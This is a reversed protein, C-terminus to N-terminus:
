KYNDNTQVYSLWEKNSIALKIKRLDDVKKIQEIVWLGKRAINYAGNADADKPLSDEVARSDYFIGNKDCVPSILYDIDSNTVSNRMQLTLKFCGLLVEFFAKEDKVLIFDKINQGNMYVIENDDFLKKFGDTPKVEKNDWQSNKDKNRFTLIREGYSCVTWNQRTGDAKPNFATYNTLKFEFYNKSINYKISEFKGFFEKAKEVSTYRTDFLNVFGTIPDIKSTNWAPVYYLFGSQKGIKEFSIFKSTLQLANLVGGLKNVDKKKDVFYNLKDILAKEFKQYVQKEVKFRGQKFGFNLDELVVIANHKVMLTAVKHIVQSMYGEKLEKINEVVGWNVRADGREKEKADLLKHYNTKYTTCNHENVIENLSYQEIIKGSSDILSLYLLHREGRDIGIVKIDNSEKIAQNVQQNINDNGNAKFNMTIPVHFGFKDVTYRKDKIIDYDFTSSKKPNDSNKNNIPENADHTVINNTISKKRFFIEAQGNLKYVVNSLNDKDFLMKWYLTHMNPTGKSYPSFDKNYIQFLYLKGSEVYNMLRDWNVEEYKVEYCSTEVDKYFQAIDLYDKTNKWGFKYHKYSEHQLFGQKFYDILKHLSDLYDKPNKKRYETKFKGNDYIEIVSQIPLNYITVAPAFNDGKSRIFLRPINKNDPKQFDLIVRKSLNENPNDLLYQKEDETLKKVNVGLYYNGDKEFLLGARTDYDQSWGNLLYGSEFNLKFKDTSFPKKTLYNRVMDYLKVGLSLQEFYTDFNAYFAIDLESDIKAHLPKVFRQLNTIADMFNKIKSKSDQDNSLKKDLSYESSLLPKIAIFSDIIRDFINNSVTHEVTTKDWNNFYDFIVDSSMKARLEDKDRLYSRLAEEIHAISFYKTKEIKKEIKELGDKAKVERPNDLKYKEEIAGKIVSWDGFIDKSINTMSLDNRIYIREKDFLLTDAFHEKLKDLINIVGDCCNFNVIENNYFDNIANLLENDSEFSEPLWSTLERDSLIQKYLPKLNPIDKKTLGNQQRYLNIKENLGQVKTGDDLVTGGIMTNYLDIHTQSATHNFYDNTFMDEVVAGLLHHEVTNKADSVLKPYKENLKEFARKNTLYIPLNEHVVRYAVATHKEDAKYINKRNEHFGSFYTTFNSFNSVITKMNDIMLTNDSTIERIKTVFKNDKKDLWSLLDQKILEKAFLNKYLPHKQFKEAIKKRMKQQVSEIAKKDEDSKDKIYFLREYSNIDDNDFLFGDMAENMFDKHYEDIIKKVVKYESARKEDQELLMKSNINNLTKGIPKLEFRLTKSLQYQNTFNKFM